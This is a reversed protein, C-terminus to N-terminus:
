LSGTQFLPVFIVVKKGDREGLQNKINVKLSDLKDAPTNGIIPDPKYLIPPPPGRNNWDDIPIQLKM